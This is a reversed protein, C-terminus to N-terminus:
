PVGQIKFTEQFAETSFTTATSISHCVLCTKEGCQECRGSENLKPLTVRFLFDKLSKGNQFGIVLVPFIKKHEKNPTLLIHLEEMIARVNQFAPYYTINFTLKQESMQPKERDLLYNRSHENARLTQKCIMNENFAREM